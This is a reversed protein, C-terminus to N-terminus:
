IQGLTLKVYSFFMFVPILGSIEQFVLTICSFILSVPRILKKDAILVSLLMSVFSITKAILLGLVLIIITEIYSPYIKIDIDGIELLKNLHRAFLYWFIIMGELFITFSPSDTFSLFPIFYFITIVGSAILGALIIHDIMELLISFSQLTDGVFLLPSIISLLFSLLICQFIFNTIIGILFRKSSIDYEDKMSYGMILINSAYKLALYLILCLWVQWHRFFLLGELISKWIM